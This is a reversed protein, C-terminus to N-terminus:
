QKIIKQTATKGDTTEIKLLYMGQALYSTNIEKSTSELVKKGLLTYIEAKKLTDELQITLTNQVPNPYVSFSTASFNNLSLTNGGTTNFDIYNHYQYFIENNTVSRDYILFDDLAGTYRNASPLVLKSFTAITVNENVTYTLFRNTDLTTDVVRVGDIYLVVRFDTDGDTKFVRLAIMHWADDAVNVTSSFGKIADNGTAFTIASVWGVINGNQLVLSMGQKGNFSTAGLDDVSNRNSHDFIVRRNSDNTTTKMWFSYTVSESNGYTVDPRTLYDGNLRIAKNTDGFRDNIQTLANGAQIFNNVTAQEDKFVDPNDLKHEAVLNNVPYTIPFNTLNILDTNIDNASILVNYVGLDDIEDEYKNTSTLGGNSLNGISFDESVFFSEFVTSNERSGFQTGGSSIGDIFLATTLQNETQSPHHTDARFVIHHWNGDSVFTNDTFSVQLDTNPLSRGQVIGTIKGSKLSISLGRKGIFSIGTRNSFDIIVRENADNTTTKIWFAITVADTGFTFSPRSIQDGNLKLASKRGFRDNVSVLSSGTQTLDVSHNVSKLVEGEAFRYGVRLGNTSFQAFVISNLFLALLLIIKKM